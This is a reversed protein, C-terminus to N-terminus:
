KKVRPKLATEAHSRIALTGTKRGCLCIPRVSMAHIRRLARRLRMEEKTM